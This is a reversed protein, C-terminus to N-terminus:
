AVMGAAEIVRQISGAAEDRRIDCWAICRNVGLSELRDLQKCLQSVTVIGRPARGAIMGQVYPVAKIGLSACLKLDDTPDEPQGSRSAYHYQPMAMIPFSCGEVLMRVWQKSHRDTGLAYLSKADVARSVNAVAAAHEAPVLEDLPQYEYDTVVMDTEGGVNHIEGIRRNTQKVVRDIRARSGWGLWYKPLLRGGMVAQVAWHEAGVNKLRTLVEGVKHQERPPFEGGPMVLIKM